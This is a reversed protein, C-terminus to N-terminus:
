DKYRTRQFFNGIYVVWKPTQRLLTSWMTPNCVSQKFTSTILLYADTKNLMWARFIFNILHCTISWTCLSSTLLPRRSQLRSNPVKNTAMKASQLWFHSLLAANMIGLSQIYAVLVTVKVKWLSFVHSHFSKLELVVGLCSLPTIVQWHCSLYISIYKLFGWPSIQRWLLLVLLSFVRSYFTFYLFCPHFIYIYVLLIYFLTYIHIYVCVCVYYLSQAFYVFYFIFYFIYTYIYICCIHM